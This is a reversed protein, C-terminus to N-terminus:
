RTVLVKRVAQDRDTRVRVWYMGRGVPRGLGDQGDWELRHAGVNAQPVRQFRIRRGNVDFVELSLDGTEAIEVDFSVRDRTPNPSPDGVSLFEVPEITVGGHPIRVRVEDSFASENDEEDVATVRYSYERGPVLMQDEFMPTSSGVQVPAFVGGPMRARYVRYHAFDAEPSDYWDLRVCDSKPTVVLGTVPLPPTTDPAPGLDITVMAINSLDSVNGASDSAVLAFAFTGEDPLADFVVSEGNGPQAPVLPAPVPSATRWTTEDLSDARWRLMYGTVAHGNGSDAPATWFVEV